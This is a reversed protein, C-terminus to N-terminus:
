PRGFKKMFSGISPVDPKGSEFGPRAESGTQRIVNEKLFSMVTDKKSAPDSKHFTGTM